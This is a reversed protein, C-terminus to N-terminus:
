VRLSQPLLVSASRYELWGPGKHTETLNMLIALIVICLIVVVIPVVFVVGLQNYLMWSAIAVQIFSAWIDHLSRFGMNIHEIDTSM